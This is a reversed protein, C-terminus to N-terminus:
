SFGLLRLFAVLFVFPLCIPLIWWSLSSLSPECPQDDLGPVWTDKKEKKEEEARGEHNKNEDLEKLGSADSNSFRENWAPLDQPTVIASFRFVKDAPYILVPQHLRPSSSDSAASVRM